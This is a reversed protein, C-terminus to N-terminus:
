KSKTFGADTLNTDIKELSVQKKDDFDESSLGFLQATLTLDALKEFDSTIIAYLDTNKLSVEVKLANEGEDVYVSSLGSELNAKLAEKQAPNDTFYQSTLQYRINDEAAIVKSGDNNLKFTIVEEYPIEATDSETDGTSITLTDNRTYKVSKTNSCGTLFGLSLAFVLGVKLLKSFKM